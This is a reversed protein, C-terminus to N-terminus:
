EDEKGEIIVELNYDNHLVIGVPNKGSDKLENFFKFLDNRIYYGGKAIGRFDDVWFVKPENQTEVKDM